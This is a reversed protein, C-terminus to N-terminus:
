FIIFYSMLSVFLTIALYFSSKMNLFQNASGRVCTGPGKLPITQKNWEYRPCMFDGLRCNWVGCYGIMDCLLYASNEKCWDGAYTYAIDTPQTSLELCDCGSASMAQQHLNDSELCYSSCMIKYSSQIDIPGMRGAKFTTLLTFRKKCRDVALEIALSNTLVFWTQTQYMWFTPDALLVGGYRTNGWEYFKTMNCSSQGSCSIWYLSFTLFAFFLNVVMKM